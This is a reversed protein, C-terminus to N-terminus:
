GLQRMLVTTWDGDRRMDAIAPADDHWVGTQGTLMVNADVDQNSRRVIALTADTTWGPAFAYREERAWNVRVDHEFGRGAVRIWEAGSADDVHV